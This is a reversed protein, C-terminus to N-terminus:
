ITGKTLSTRILAVPLAYICLSLVSVTDYTAARDTVQFQCFDTHDGSGAEMVRTFSAIEKAPFERTLNRAM